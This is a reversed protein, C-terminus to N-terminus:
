HLFFLWVSLSFLSVSQNFSCTVCQPSLDNFYSIFVVACFFFVFLRDFRRVKQDQKQNKMAVEAKGEM